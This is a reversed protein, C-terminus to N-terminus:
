LRLGLMNLPKAKNRFCTMCAVSAGSYPSWPAQVALSYWM